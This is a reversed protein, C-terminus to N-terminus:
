KQADDAGKNGDKPQQGAQMNMPTLYDDGGKRPDLGDYDRIENPNYVGMEIM